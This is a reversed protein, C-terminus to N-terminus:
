LSGVSWTCVNFTLSLLACLPLSGLLQDNLMVQLVASAIAAVSQQISLERWGSFILGSNNMGCDHHFHWVYIQINTRKQTLSCSRSSLIWQHTCATPSSPYTYTDFEANLSLTRPSKLPPLATDQKILLFNCLEKRYVTRAELYSCGWWGPKVVVAPIQCESLRQVRLWRWVSRHPSIWRALHSTLFSHPSFTQLNDASDTPRSRARKLSLLM